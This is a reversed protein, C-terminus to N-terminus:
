STRGSIPNAIWELLVVTKAEEEYSEIAESQVSPFTGLFKFNRDGSIKGLSGPDVWFRSPSTM